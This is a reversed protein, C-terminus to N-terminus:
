PWCSCGRERETEREGEREPRVKFYRGGGQDLNVDEECVACTLPFESKEMAESDSPTAVLPALRQLTFGHRTVVTLGYELEVGPMWLIPVIM